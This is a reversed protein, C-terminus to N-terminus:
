KIVLAFKVKDRKIRDLVRRAQMHIHVKAERRKGAKSCTSYAEHHDEQGGLQVHLHEEQSSPYYRRQTAMTEGFTHSVDMDVVDCAVSNQYFKGILFPFYFLDM